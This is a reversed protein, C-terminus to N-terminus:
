RSRVAIASQIRFKTVATAAHEAKELRLAHLHPGDRFEGRGPADPHKALCVIIRTREVDGACEGIAASIGSEADVIIPVQARRYGGSQNRLAFEDINGAREHM